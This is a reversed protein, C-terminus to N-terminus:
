LTIGKTDSFHAGEVIKYETETDSLVTKKESLSPIPNYNEDYEFLRAYINWYIPYDEGASRVCNDFSGLDYDLAIVINQDHDGIGEDTAAFAATASSLTIASVLLFCCVNKFSKM